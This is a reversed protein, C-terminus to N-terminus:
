WCRRSSILIKTWMLIYWQICTHLSIHSFLKIRNLYWLYSIINNVELKMKVTATMSCIYSPPPPQELSVMLLWGFQKLLLPTWAGHLGGRSLRKVKRNEGQLDFLNSPFKYFMKLIFNVLQFNLHLWAGGCVLISFLTKCARLEQDRGEFM